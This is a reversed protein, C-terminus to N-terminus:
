GEGQIDMLALNMSSSQYATPNDNVDPLFDDMDLMFGAEALRKLHNKMVSLAAYRQEYANKAQSRFEELETVVAEDEKSHLSIAQRFVVHGADNLYFHGYSQDRNIKMILPASLAEYDQDFIMESNLAQAVIRNEHPMYHMELRLSSFRGEQDLILRDWAVRKFLLETTLLFAEYSDMPNDTEEYFDALFDNMTM